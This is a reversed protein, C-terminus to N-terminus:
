VGSVYLGDYGDPVASNDLNFSFNVSIENNASHQTFTITTFSKHENRFMKMTEKKPKQLRMM